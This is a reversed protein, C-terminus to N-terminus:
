PFSLLLVVLARLAEDSVLSAVWATKGLGQLGQLTLVGRGHFGVKKLAAAVASVAWRYMLTEKLAQPFEAAQVLTAYFAPLRDIGDWPRSMIWVAVPNFQKRDGVAVMLESIKSTPFGNLAAISGIQTLVVNDHNDFSGTHGAIHVELKKKIVNYQVEINYSALLYQFNAITPLIQGSPTRPQNPFSRADLPKASDLTFVNSPESNAPKASTALMSTPHPKFKSPPAGGSPQGQNILEQPLVFVMDASAAGIGATYGISDVMAAQQQGAVGDTLEAGSAGIQSAAAVAVSAANRPEVAEMPAPVGTVGGLTPVSEVQIDSAGVEQRASPMAGLGETQVIGRWQNGNAESM